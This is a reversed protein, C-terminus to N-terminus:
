GSPTAEGVSPCRLTANQIHGVDFPVCRLWLNVNDTYAKGRLDKMSVQHARVTQNTKRATTAIEEKDIQAFAEVRMYRSSTQWEDNQEFLVAGILRM